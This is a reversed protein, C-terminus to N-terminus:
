PALLAFIAEDKLGFCGLAKPLTNELYGPSLNPLRAIDGLPVLDFASLETPDPTILPPNEGHCVGLAPVVRVVGDGSFRPEQFRKGLKLSVISLNYLVSGIHFDIDQITTPDIGCETELENNIAYRVPDFAEDKLDPDHLVDIFGSVGSWSNIPGDGSAREVILARTQRTPLYLGAPHWRMAGHLLTVNVAYAIPASSYDIARGAPDGPWLPLHGVTARIEASLKSDLHQPM